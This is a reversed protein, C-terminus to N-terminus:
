SPLFDSPRKNTYRKFVTAFNQSSDYGLRIAVQTVSYRGSALLRKAREVKQYKVYDLPTMGVEQRFKVQFWSQSLGAYDALEPGTLSTEDELHKEIYELVGAIEASQNDVPESEVCRMIEVILNWLKLSMVMPKVATRTHEHALFVDEFLHELQRSGKFVRGRQKVQSLEELVPKAMARSFGLFNRAKSDMRIQLWYSLLRERCHEGLGHREDPFAFFMDGGFVRYDKGLFQWVQRGKAMYHIELVHPAHTHERAFELMSESYSEHPDNRPRWRGVSPIVDNFGVDKLDLETRVSRYITEGGPM